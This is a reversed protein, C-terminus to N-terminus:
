RDSVGGSLGEVRHSVGWELLLERWPDDARLRWKDGFRQVSRRNWEDSWRREFFPLDITELKEAVVYTVVASPELWVEGGAERALM